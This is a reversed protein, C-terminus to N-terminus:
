GARRVPPFVDKIVPYAGGPFVSPIPEPTTETRRRTQDLPFSFARSEDDTVHGPRCLRFLSRGSPKSPARQAPPLAMRRPAFTGMFLRPHHADHRIPQPFSWCSTCLRKLPCLCNRELCCPGVKISRDHRCRIEPPQRIRVGHGRDSPQDLRLVAAGRDAPRLPTGSSEEGSPQATMGRPVLFNRGQRGGSRKPGQPTSQREGGAPRDGDLGRHDRGSLLM